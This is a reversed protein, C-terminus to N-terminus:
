GHAVHRRCTKHPHHALRWCGHQHCNKHRLLSVVGVFMPIDAGFGSWFLYWDGNASDLGFLHEFYRLM